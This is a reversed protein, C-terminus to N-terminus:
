FIRELRDLDTTLSCQEGGFEVPKLVSCRGQAPLRLRRRRCVLERKADCRGRFASVPRSICVNTLINAGLSFGIAFLSRNPFKERLWKVTQRVDWTARANYLVGTTIKSMACGRSNVVCAEWGGEKSVLPALVHRLYLEYSGGSLGHLTVLMPKSDLSGSELIKFEEDTFYTTRPPLSEDNESPTDVVFDVAFTGAYAPDDADFIKRKYIIPPGEDKVVTWATQLHGNFLLPNLRCPPISDRCIDLLSVESGSKTQLRVPTNSHHFSTKAHGRLWSLDM